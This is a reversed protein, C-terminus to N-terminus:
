MRGIVRIIEFRWKTSRGYMKGWKGATLNGGDGEDWYTGQEAFGTLWTSYCGNSDRMKKVTLRRLEEGVLFAFFVDAYGTKEDCAYYNSDSSLTANPGASASCLTSFSGDTILFRIWSKQQLDKSPSSSAVLLYAFLSSLSFTVPVSTAKYSLTNHLTEASHASPLALSLSFHSLTVLLSHPRMILLKERRSVLTESGFRHSLKLHSDPCSHPGAYARHKHKETHETDWFKPFM